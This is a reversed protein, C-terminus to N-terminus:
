GNDGGGDCAGKGCCWDLVVAAAGEKSARRERETSLCYMACRCLRVIEAAATDGPRAASRKVSRALFVVIVAAVGEVLLVEEGGVDKVGAMMGAAGDSSVCIM